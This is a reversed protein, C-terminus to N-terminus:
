SQLSQTSIYLVKFFFSKSNAKPLIIYSGSLGEDEYDNVWKDKFSTAIIKFTHYKLENYLITAQGSVTFNSEPSHWLVKSIFILMPEPLPKTGDLLVGNSPM